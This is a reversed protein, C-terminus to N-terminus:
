TKFASDATITSHRTQSIQPSVKSIKSCAFFKEQSNIFKTVTYMCGPIHYYSIMKLLFQDYILMQDKFIHDMCLFIYVFYKKLYCM